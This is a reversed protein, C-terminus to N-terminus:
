VRYQAVAKEDLILGHGPADLPAMMGDKPVPMNQLIETSRPMYEVMHGAPVSALLHVHVEPVVHGCVPVNYAEGLAAMKRWPTIGGVRALDLIVVDLARAELCDRVQSLTYYHEGGTVPMDFMDRIKALAAYDQHDIPDELWGAGADQLARGIEVAQTYSWGETADVMVTVGPGAADKAHRVRAAQEAAPATHSLRLKVGGYGAAAYDAISAQLDDVPVSYWMRDSAYAVVETRHGGLLRFVPQGLAKGLADWVAIDIPALSWHLLGGPGVWDARDALSQWIAEPARLDLGALHEALEAAGAAITRMLDGRPQVIYGVGEIGDVTRVRALVHWNADIARGAAQYTDAVPIKLVEISCSDIKM